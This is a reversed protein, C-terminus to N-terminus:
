NLSYMKLILPYYKVYIRYRHRMMLMDLPIYLLCYLFSLGFWNRQSAKLKVLKKIKLRNNEQM